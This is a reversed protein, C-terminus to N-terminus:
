LGCKIQFREQKYVASTLPLFQLIEKNLVYITQLILWEVIYVATFFPTFFVYLGRSIIARTLVTYTFCFLYTFTYVLSIGYESEMQLNSKVLSSLDEYM